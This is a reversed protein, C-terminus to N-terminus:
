QFEEKVWKIDAKLKGRGIYATTMKTRLAFIVNGLGHEEVEKRLANHRTTICKKKDYRALKINLM